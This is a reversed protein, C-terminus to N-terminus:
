DKDRQRLKNKLDKLMGLPAGLWNSLTTMMFEVMKMLLEIM